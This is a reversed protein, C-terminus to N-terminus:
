PIARELGFDWPNPQSTGLPRRSLRAKQKAAALAPLLLAALIAIIAIIAIVVLLQILSFGRETRKLGRCIFKKDRRISRM